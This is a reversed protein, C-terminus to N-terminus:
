VGRQKTLQLTRITITGFTNNALWVAVKGTDTKCEDYFIASADTPELDIEPRYDATCGTVPIDVRYPYSAYTSDAVADSANVAVSTQLIILKEAQLAAVNVNTADIEQQLHGAATGDLAANVIAMYEDMFGQIQNHIDDLSLPQPFAPVVMGCLSSNLRQDTIDAATIETVNAKILIDALVIEYYNSERIIDPAVPTSSPSGEKLYLEVSRVSDSTDMRAVIRDIRKLSSHAASLTFSRVTDEFGKSGEINCGGKQVAVKMGTDATVQLSNSQESTLFVGTTLDLANFRREMSDDIARDGNPYDTTIKSIFPYSYM